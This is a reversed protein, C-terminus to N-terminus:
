PKKTAAHKNEPQGRGPIVAIYKQNSASARSRGLPIGQSSYRYVKKNGGIWLSGDTRDIDLSFGGRTIEHQLAGESDYKCTKSWVRPRTLFDRVSKGTPLKGTRKKISDLLSKLASEKYAGGTVWVSGDSRDVRLCSPSFDLGVTKLVQGTPSIKFIQNTSQTVNPHQCEAVWVSGDRDLDISVACWRISSVEVEVELQLNCKKISKGTLWLVGRETDLSLDFGGVAAQRVVRGAEDIVLTQKGHITGGSTLAYVLGDPSVTASTFDSASVAEAKLTWLREGTNLQYASLQNGVNECVAFFRTDPAISLSRCGGVTECINLDSVKRVAKGGPGFMIVADEFPPNQYDRDRDELVLVGATSTLRGEEHLWDADGSWYIALLGGLLLVVVTLALKSKTQRPWLFRRFNSGKDANM